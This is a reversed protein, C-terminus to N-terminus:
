LTGEVVDGEARQAAGRGHEGAWRLAEVREAMEMVTPSEFVTRVPVQLGFDKRVRSVVQTALLSHGGLEFFNDHIGVRDLELLDCWIATLQEEMPTRAPVYTVELEPRTGDPVALLANRDLKGNPTLPLKPLKMFASPIMYEPLTQRAHNRLETISPSQDRTCVVYAVLRKERQRNELCLVAAESVGEHRALTMEIEQLEVRFGRIKVQHDLRGVFEIQGGPLYRARDGSKYLREDPEKQFPHHVFKDATLEPRNLYGRALGDGGIHLEGVVGIPVPRLRDDLIYVQTNSIPRGIPVSSTIRSAATMVHCCTFTTNETPGYGNILRRDALTEIVKKVHPVSLTDGGTLLQRVGRLRELQTDVMQRFLASTLWLTTVHHSEIFAGLEELSPSHPPFLVLRGGNLLPGWLEFTSADFSIPAFQLCVEDPGLEV